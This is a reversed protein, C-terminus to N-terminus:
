ESTSAKEKRLTQFGQVLTQTITLDHKQAYEVIETHEDDTLRIFVGNNRPNDLRPRGTRAM